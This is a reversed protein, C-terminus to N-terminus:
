AAQREGTGAGLTPVGIERAVERGPDDLPKGTGVLWEAAVPPLLHGHEEGVDLAERRQGLPKGGLLDHLAQAPKMGPPPPDDEGM